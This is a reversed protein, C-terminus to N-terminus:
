ITECYVIGESPPWTYSSCRCIVRAEHRSHFVIAWGTTDTCFSIDKECTYGTFGPTEFRYEDTSPCPVDWGCKCYEYEDTGCVGGPACRPLDIVDTDSKTNVITMMALVMTCVLIGMSVAM